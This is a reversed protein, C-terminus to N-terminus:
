SEKGKRGISRRVARAKKALARVGAMWGYGGRVKLRFEIAWEEPDVLVRGVVYDGEGMVTTSPELTFVRDYGEQMALELERKGCEGHPFAFLTVPTGIREELIRKSQELERRAERVDMRELDEHWVGHSGIEVLGGTLAKLEEASMVREPQDGRRLRWAPVSGMAGVPAFIVSPIGRAALEPLANRAAGAFADDFTVGVYRGGQVAAAFDRLRAPRGAKLVEDMQWAFDAREWGRVSHYALVVLERRRRGALRAVANRPAVVLWYYCLSVPVKTARRLKDGFTQSRKGERAADAGLLHFAATKKLRSIKDIREPNYFGFFRAAIDAAGYAAVKFADTAGYLANAAWGGIVGRHKKFFALLSRRRELDMDRTSSKSSQGILHVIQAEHCYYTKWGAKKFRYCWDMEEAYMFYRTDMRGVGDVAARRVLMFCGAVTEVERTDNHDWWTMMGRGFIRSKPFLAPLGTASLVIQGFRPFIATTEQLTGDSSWIRCGVVGADGTREAFGFAKEIAGARVITDPNLLLYYKGGAVEMGRNNGGAFGLNERSAVLRVQPFEGAVMEVSGDSSANDVVIVEFEIGRTQEFVSVLCDKLAGKTNYNVIIVSVDM